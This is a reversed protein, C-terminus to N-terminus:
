KNRLKRVPVKPMFRKTHTEDTKIGADPFQELVKKRAKEIAELSNTNEFLKNALGRHPGLPKLGYKKAYENMLYYIISVTIDEVNTLM